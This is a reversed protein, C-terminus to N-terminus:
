SSVRKRVAFALAENDFALLVNLLTGTEIEGAEEKPVTLELMGVLEPPVGQDPYAERYLEMPDLEHNVCWQAFILVMANTDRRYSDALQGELGKQKDEM